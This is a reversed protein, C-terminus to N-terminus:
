VVTPNTRLRPGYGSPTRCAVDDAAVTVVDDATITTAGNPSVIGLAAYATM